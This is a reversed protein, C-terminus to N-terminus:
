INNGHNAGCTGGHHPCCFGGADNMHGAWRTPENGLWQPEGCICVPVEECLEQGSNFGGFWSSKVYGVIGRRTGQRVATIRETYSMVSPDGALNYSAGNAVVEGFKYGAKAMAVTDLTECGWVGENVKKPIVFNEFM